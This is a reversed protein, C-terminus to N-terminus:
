YPYIFGYNWMSFPRYQYDFWYSNTWTPTVYAYSGDIYVNWDWNNLFYIDNYAPDGIFVRYKPHQFRRIREAYEMDSKTGNFGNLYYGQEEETNAAIRASDKLEVSTTDVFDAIDDTKDKYVIERAGEKYAPKVKKSIERKKVDDGPKFYIDDEVVKSQAFVTTSLTAILVAVYFGTKM